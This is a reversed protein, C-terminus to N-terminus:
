GATTNPLSLRLKGKTEMGGIGKIGSITNEIVHAVGVVSDFPTFSIKEAVLIPDYCHIFVREPSSAFNAGAELIAEYYSQCAGAIIVLADRDPQVQRAKRVADVFYRSTRYNELKAKDGRRVILGDHGTLVLIDPLYAKIFPAVRDPQAEEPVHEGVVPVGLEQYYRLCNKLYDGDGDLHLVRGPLRRYNVGPPLVEGERGRYGAGLDEAMRRLFVKELSQRLERQVNECSADIDAQRVRVLDGLPADAMLRANLGKLLAGAVRAPGVVIKLVIFILDSAHSKRAVADGVRIQEM